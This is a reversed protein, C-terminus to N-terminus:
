EGNPQIVEHNLLDFVVINMKEIYQGFIRYHCAPDLEEFTNFVLDLLKQSTMEMGHRDNTSFDKPVKFSNVERENCPQVIFKKKATDMLLRIRRPYGLVLISAQNISMRSNTSNVYLVYKSREPMM